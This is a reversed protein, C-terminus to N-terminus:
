SLFHKQFVLYDVFHGVYHLECGARIRTIDQRLGVKSVKGLKESTKPWSSNLRRRLKRSTSYASTRLGQSHKSRKKKSLYKLTQTVQNQYSVLKMAMNLQSTMTKLAYTVAQLSSRTKYTPCLLKLQKSHRLGASIPRIIVSYTM